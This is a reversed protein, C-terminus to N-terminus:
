NQFGTEFYVSALYYVSICIVFLYFGLYVKGIRKWPFRDHLRLTHIIWEPNPEESLDAESGSKRWVYRKEELSLHYFPSQNGLELVSLLISPVEFYKFRILGSFGTFIALYNFVVILPSATYRSSFLLYLYIVLFGISLIKSIKTLNRYLREEKLFQTFAETKM